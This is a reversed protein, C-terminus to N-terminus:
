IKKIKVVYVTDDVINCVDADSDNLSQELIHRIYIFRSPDWVKSLKVLSVVIFILLWIGILELIMNYDFNQILKNKIAQMIPPLKDDEEMSLYAVLLSSLSVIYSFSSLGLEAFSIIGNGGDASVEKVKCEALLRDRNEMSLGAVAKALENYRTEPQKDYEKYITTLENLEM